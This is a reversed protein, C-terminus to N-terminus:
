RMPERLFRRCAKAGADSSARASRRAARAAIDYTHIEQWKRAETAHATPIHPLFRTQHPATHPTPQAGTHRSHRPSPFRPRRSGSRRTHAQTLKTTQTPESSQSQPGCHTPTRTIYTHSGERREPVRARRLPPISLFYQSISFLGREDVRYPCFIGLVFQASLYNCENEPPQIRM